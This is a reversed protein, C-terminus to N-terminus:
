DLHIGTVQRWRMARVATPGAGEAAKGMCSEVHASRQDWTGAVVVVLMLAAVTVAAASSPGTAVPRSVVLLLSTRALGMKLVM